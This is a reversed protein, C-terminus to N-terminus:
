DVYGFEIRNILSAPTIKRHSACYFDVFEAPTKDPFGELIVERRGYEIDTLMRDLRERRASVIKIVGLKVMKGGPGLGQCKEAGQVLEDPQINWWGNRRTVLKSRAKFQAITLMFSM